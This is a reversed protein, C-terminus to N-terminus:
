NKKGRKKKSERVIWQNDRIEIKIKKKDEAQKKKEKETKKKWV